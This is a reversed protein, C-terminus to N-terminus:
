RMKVDDQEPTLFPFRVRSSYPSTGSLCNGNVAPRGWSGLIVVVGM